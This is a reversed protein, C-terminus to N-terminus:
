FKTARVAAFVLEAMVWINTSIKAEELVLLQQMLQNSIDKSFTGNIRGRLATETVKYDKTIGLAKEYFIALHTSYRRGSKSDKKTEPCNDKKKTPKSYGRKTYLQSIKM